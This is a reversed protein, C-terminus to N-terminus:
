RQTRAFFAKGQPAEAAKERVQGVVLGAPGELAMRYEALKARGLVLPLSIGSRSPDGGSSGEEEEEEGGGGEGAGRSAPPSGGAGAGARHGRGDAQKPALKRQSRWWATEGGSDPDVRNIRVQLASGHVRGYSM